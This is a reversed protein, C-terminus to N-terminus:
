RKGRPPRKPSEQQRLVGRLRSFASEWQHRYIETWAAVEQIPAPNLERFMQRGDRRTRVLKAKELYALHKSIAQQSMQFPEALETVSAPGTRLIALIARRTPDSLAAM